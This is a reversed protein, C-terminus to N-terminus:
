RDGDTEIKYADIPRNYSKPMMQKWVPYACFIYTHIWRDTTLISGKKKKKQYLIKLGDLSCMPDVEADAKSTNSGPNDTESVYKQVVNDPQHGIVGERGLSSHNM